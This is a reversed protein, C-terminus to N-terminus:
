YSWGLDVGLNTQLKSRFLSDPGIGFPTAADVRLHLWNWVAYRTTVVLFDTDGLTPTLADALSAQQRHHYTTLFQWDGLHPVEVHLFLSDDPTRSNVELGLALALLAFAILAKFLKSQM